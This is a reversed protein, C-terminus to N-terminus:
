ATSSRRLAAALDALRAAASAGEVDAVVVDVGLHECAAIVAAPVRAGVHLLLPKKALDAIARVRLGAQITLDAADGPLSLAVADVQLGGITAILRLDLDEPLTLVRAPREWGLATISLDLPLRVWDIGAEAAGTVSQADAAYALDLGVPVTVGGLARGLDRLDAEGAAHLELADAGAAVAAAMAATDPRPLAAILVARRAPTSEGGRFGVRGTSTQSALHRALDLLRSTHRPASSSPAIM